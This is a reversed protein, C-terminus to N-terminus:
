LTIVPTAAVTYFRFHKVLSCLALRLEELAFRMGICNRPGVGFPLFAYPHIGQKQKWRDPDFKEPNSYYKESRHLAYTPVTVMVGKRIRISGVTVDRTCM